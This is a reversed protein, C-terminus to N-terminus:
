ARAYEFDLLAAYKGDRVVTNALYLDLDHHVLCPRAQSSVVRAGDKLRQVAEQVGTSHCNQESAAGRRRPWSESLQRWGQPHPRRTIGDMFHPHGCTHLRGVQEGWDRFFLRRDSVRMASLAVDGTQGEVYEWVTVLNDSFSPWSEAVFVVAPTLVGAQRARTSAVVASQMRKVDVGPLGIKVALPGADTRVQRGDGLAYRVLDKVAGETGTM